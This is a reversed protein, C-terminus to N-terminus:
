ATWSCSIVVGLQKWPGPIMIALKQSTKWSLRSLEKVESSFHGPLFDSLAFEGRTRYSVTQGLYRQQSIPEVSCYLLVPDCLLQQM